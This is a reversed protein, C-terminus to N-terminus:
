GPWGGAMFTSEAAERSREAQWKLPHIACFAFQASTQSDFVGGKRVVNEKRKLGEWLKRAKV